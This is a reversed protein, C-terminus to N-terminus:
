QLPVAPEETTAGSFAIVNDKGTAHRALRLAAEVAESGSNSFFFSDLSAPVIASLKEALELMKEHQVVSMQAHVIEAAQQQVARVVTPHCHGTSTVGIGATFDLMERGCATRLMCGAGSTVVVDSLRKVWSLAPQVDEKRRRRRKKEEKEEGEGEEICSSSSGSSPINQLLPKQKSAEKKAYKGQIFQLRKIQINNCVSKLGM